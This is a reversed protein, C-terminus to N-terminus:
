ESAVRNAESSNGASARRVNSKKGWRLNYGVRFSIGFNNYTGESIQYFNDRFTDTRQGGYMNFIDMFSLRFNLGQKPFNKQILVNCSPRKKSESYLSKSSSTFYLDHSIMIDYPLRFTSFYGISWYHFDDKDDLFRTKDYHYTASFSVDLWKAMKVPASLNARLSTNEKGTQTTSYLIGDRIESLGMSGNDSYACRVNLTYKNFLVTTMQLYDYYNAKLLPNGMSYSYENIRRVLPNLADMSPRGIGRDYSLSINHGKDKNIVYNLGVEPFIDTYDSSYNREPNSSSVPNIRAHEMRVGFDMSLSGFTLGYKAYAAYVDEKYNYLDAYSTIDDQVGDVSVAYDTHSENKLWTGKVGVSLKGKLAKFRQTFDLRATHILNEDLSWLDYGTDNGAAYRYRQLSNEDVDTGMRDAKFELKADKNFKHTYIFSLNYKDFKRVANDSGDAVDAYLGNKLNHVRSTAPNSNKNQQFTGELSFLNNTDLDYSFGLVTRINGALKNKLTTESIRRENTDYYYVETRNNSESNGLAGGINFYMGWKKNIRWNVSANMSHIHKTETNASGLGINAMGGTEPNITTIKIVSKGKNTADEEVGSAAIVEMAKVNKADITELYAILQEGSLNLERGNLYIKSVTKGFAQISNHTAHTGPSIKLVSTMDMNRYLPNKHVEAVYGDTNYTITRATVVVENMLQVNESLVVPPLTVNGKVEVSTTYKVYGVFSVELAYKGHPLFISYCGVSDTTTGKIESGKKLLVYAGVLTENDGAQVIGSIKCTNQASMELFVFLSLLICYWRKDMWLVCNM